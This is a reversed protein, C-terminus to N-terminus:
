SLMRRLLRLARVPPRLVALVARRVASLVARTAPEADAATGVCLRLGGQEAAAVRVGLEALGRGAATVPVAAEPTWGYANLRVKVDLAGGAPGPWSDPDLLVTCSAEIDPGDSAQREVARLIKRGGGGVEDVIVALRTREVLDTVDVRRLRRTRALLPLLWYSRGDLTATRVPRGWRDVLRAHVEIRIVGDVGRVSARVIRVGVEREVTGLRRLQGITGARLLTDRARAAAGLYSRQREGLDFRRVVTRMHRVMGRQHSWTQWRLKEGTLMALMKARYWQAYLKDRLEGPQTNQEVVALVRALSEYYVRPDLPQYTASAEREVWYYCVHRAYVATRDAAFLSRVVFEHDELRVRGEPFRIRHERVMATRFMKHPTLLRLIPDRGLRADPIDKRFLEPPVGRGQGVGAERGIVVDAGLERAYDVLRRLGDPHFHDDHDAFFLFEGNAADIGLNRPRGPWGSNPTNHLVTVHPRTQAWERLRERTGDTSDDDVFVVELDGPALTQADLSELLSAIADGSNYVAVVVSVAPAGALPTGESRATIPM